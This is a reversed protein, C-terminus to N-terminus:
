MKIKNKLIGKDFLVFLLIIIEGDRLVCFFKFLYRLKELGWKGEIYFSFIVEYNRFELISEIFSFNDLDYIYYACVSVIRLICGIYIYIYEM